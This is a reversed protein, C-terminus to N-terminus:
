TFVRRLWASIDAIEAPCVAHAMPYEHWEVQYGLAQMRELSMRGWQLPLVPDHSGHAMFIPLEARVVANETADPVALYTSLAMLGGIKHQTTLLTNLAIAGGQSFGAVVIRGVDVGREIERNILMELQVTSDSVGQKDARGESDLSVIDYWARM